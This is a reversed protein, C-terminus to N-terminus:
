QPRREDDVAALGEPEARSKAKGRGGAQERQERKHRPRYAVPAGEVDKLRQGRAIGVIGSFEARGPKHAPYSGKSGVKSGGVLDVPVTVAVTDIGRIQGRARNVVRRLVVLSLLEQAIVVGGSGQRGFNVGAEGLKGPLANASM